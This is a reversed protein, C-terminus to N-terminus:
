STHSLPPFHPNLYYFLATPFSNPFFNLFHCSLLVKPPSCFDRHLTKRLKVLLYASVLGFWRGVFDVIFNQM